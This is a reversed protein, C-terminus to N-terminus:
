GVSKQPWKKGKMLTLFVRLYEAVAREISFKKMDKKINEVFYTYKVKITDILDIMTDTTIQDPLPLGYNRSIEPTGGSDHYIIPLGCSLAELVVNPCPDNRAAHLFVDCKKYYSALEEQEMPPFCIVKRKDIEEPWNGVFYSEVCKIESFRAITSYGKRPNSSWNCSFVKLKEAGNWFEKGRTNFISQDVGNYVISYNDGDYGYRKFSELCHTSQFILHDALRCAQLQLEDMKDWQNNYIARLGDLRHVIKKNLNKRFLRKKLKTYGYKKINKVTQIDLFIGPGEYGSNMLFLDYNKDIDAVIEVQGHKFANIYNRLAKLFQNGGGWPGETIKYHIYLKIM